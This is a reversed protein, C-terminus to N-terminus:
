NFNKQLFKMVKKFVEILPIKYKEAIKKCDEYEPIIKKIGDYKAIKIRLKGFDTNIEKIDRKIINRNIEYYRVGLTTTEDFLIKILKSMNKPYCLITILTGPRNKKMIVPTLFVDIAGQAFLKEILYEYIQPNMDDINTELIIVKDNFFYLSKKGIFIRLVNPQEQIDMTGAGYGVAEIAMSPIVSFHSVITSIIAAGTPTTLEKKIGSSYVPIGRLLEATAPAPVPLLGHSSNIIGNGLNVASCYIENLSLYDISLLTGIIEVLCDTASLEHLVVKDFEKGHVKAEANYLNKFIKIAKIKIQEKLHSNNIINEIDCFRRKSHMNKVIVDIKTARLGLKKVETKKISFDEKLIKKIESELYNVPVGVDVLAGLCMDGSIGSFCDFYIIRSEKM